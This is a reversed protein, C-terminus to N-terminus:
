CHQWRSRCHQLQFQGDKRKRSERPSERGEICSIRADQSSRRYLVFHSEVAPRGPPKQNFLEIYQHENIKIFAIRDASQDANKLAFPEAYGLFDKYFVRTKALDSIYFAAHAIGLIKPRTIGEPNKLRGIDADIKKQQDPKGPPLQKLNEGAPADQAYASIAGAM